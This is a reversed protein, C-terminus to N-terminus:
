KRLTEEVSHLTRPGEREDSRNVQVRSSGLCRVLEIAPKYLEHINTIYMHLSFYTQNSNRETCEHQSEIKIAAAGALGGASKAQITPVASEM